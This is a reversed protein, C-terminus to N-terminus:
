RGGGLDACGCDHFVGEPSSKSKKGARRLNELLHHSGHGQYCLLEDCEGPAEVFYGLACRLISVPLSNQKQYKARM